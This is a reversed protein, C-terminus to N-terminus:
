HHQAFGSYLVQTGHTFKLMQYFEQIYLTRLFMGRGWNARGVGNCLDTIMMCM